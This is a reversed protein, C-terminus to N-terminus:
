KPKLIKNVIGAYRKENFGYSEAIPMNNLRVVPLRASNEGGVRDYQPGPKVHRELMQRLEQKKASLGKKQPLIQDIFYSSYKAYEVVDKRYRSDKFEESEVVSASPRNAREVWFGAAIEELAEGPDKSFWGFVM